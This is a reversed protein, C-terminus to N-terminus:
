TKWEYKHIRCNFESTDPFTMRNSLIFVPTCSVVGDDKNKVQVNRSHGALISKVDEYFYPDVVAENWEFVRKNVCNM